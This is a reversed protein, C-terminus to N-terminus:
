IPTSVADRISLNRISALGSCIAAHMIAILLMPRYFSILAMDLPVM